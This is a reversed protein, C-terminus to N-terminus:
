EINISEIWSKVAKFRHNFKKEEETGRIDALTKKSGEPIFIYTYPFDKDLVEQKPEIFKGSFKGEFSQYIENKDVYVFCSYFYGYPNDKALQWFGELGIGQYVFKALPGPFNNFKELYIGLDDVILPKNLLEWAKSAKNSAIYKIDLSQYEPIDLKAQELEINPNLEKVWRNVQEFKGDNGTVFTIKM